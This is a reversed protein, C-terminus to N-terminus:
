TRREQDDKSELDMGAGEAAKLGIWVKGKGTQGKSEGGVWVKARMKLDEVETDYSVRFRYDDKWVADLGMTGVVGCGRKVLLNLAEVPGDLLMCSTEKGGDFRFGPGGRLVLTKVGDVTLEVGNGKVICFLRDWDTYNSFPSDKKISALAIRWNGSNDWILDTATGGAWHATKLALNQNISISSPESLAKPLGFFSKYDQFEVEM